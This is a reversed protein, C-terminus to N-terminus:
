NQLAFPLVLDDSFRSCSLLSKSSTLTFVPSLLILCGTGTPLVLRCNVALPKARQLKLSLSCCCSAAATLLWFFTGTGTPLVLKWTVTPAPPLLCRCDAALLWGAKFGSPSEPNSDGRLTTMAFSTFCDGAIFRLM